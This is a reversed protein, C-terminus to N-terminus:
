AGIVRCCRLLDMSTFICHLQLWDVRSLAEGVELLEERGAVAAGTEESDTVATTLSALM